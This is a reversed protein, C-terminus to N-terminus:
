CKSRVIVKAGFKEELSYFTDREPTVIVHDLLPYMGGIRCSTKKTSELDEESWPGSSPHNHGMLLALFTKGSASEYLATLADSLRYSCLSREGSSGDAVAVVKNSHDLGLFVIHEVSGLDVGIIERLIENADFEDRIKKVYLRQIERPKWAKFEALKCAPEASPGADRGRGAKPEVDDILTLGCGRAAARGSAKGAWRARNAAERERYGQLAMEGQGTLVWHGKQGVAPALYGAELLRRMANMSTPSFRYLTKDGRAEHARVERDLSSLNLETPTGKPAKGAARGKAAGRDLFFERHRQCTWANHRLEYVWRDHGCHSCVPRLGLEARQKEDEASAQIGKQIDPAVDGLHAVLLAGKAFSLAEALTCHTGGSGLDATLLYPKESRKNALDFYLYTRERESGQYGVLTYRPKSETRITTQKTSM